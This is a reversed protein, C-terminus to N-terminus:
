RKDFQENFTGATLEDLFRHASDLAPAEDPNGCTQASVRISVLEVSDKGGTQDLAGMFATGGFPLLTKFPLSRAGHSYTADISNQGLDPSFVPEVVLRVDGSGATSRQGSRGTLAPLAVVKAMGRSALGAIKQLTAKADAKPDQAQAALPDKRSIEYAQVSITINIPVNKPLLDPPASAPSKKMLGGVFNEIATLNPQANRAILVSTPMSFLLHEKRSRSARVKWSVGRMASAGRGLLSSTRRVTFVRTYNRQDTAKTDAATAPAIVTLLIWAIISASLKTKM